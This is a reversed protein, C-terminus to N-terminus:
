WNHSCGLALSGPRVPKKRKSKLTLSSTLSGAESRVLGQHGMLLDALVEVQPPCRLFDSWSSSCECSLAFLEGSFCILLEAKLGWNSHYTPFLAQPWISCLFSLSYTSMLCWRGDQACLPPARAILHSYWLVQKPPPFPFPCCILAENVVKMRANQLKSAGPSQLKLVTRKVLHM